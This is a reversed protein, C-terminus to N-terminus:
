GDKKKKQLFHPHIQCSAVLLSDIFAIHEEQSHLWMDDRKNQILNPWIDFVTM